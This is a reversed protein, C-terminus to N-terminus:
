TQEEEARRNWAEVAKRIAEEEGYENLIPSRTKNRAQFMVTSAKCDLCGAAVYRDHYKKLMFYPRVFGVFVRNSGCFPCPKLETMDTGGEATRITADM